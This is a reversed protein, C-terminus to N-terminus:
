PLWSPKRFSPTSKSLCLSKTSLLPLTYSERGALGERGEALIMQSPSGAPFCTKTFIVCSGKSPFFQELPSLQVISLQGPSGFDISLIENPSLIFINFTGFKIFTNHDLFLIVKNEQHTYGVRLPSLSSFSCVLLHTHIYMIFAYIICFHIFLINYEIRCFM